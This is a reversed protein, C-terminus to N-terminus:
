ADYKKAEENRQDRAALLEKWERWARVYGRVASYTARCALTVGICFLALSLDSAGTRLMMVSVFADFGFVGLIMMYHVIALRSYFYPPIRPPRELM